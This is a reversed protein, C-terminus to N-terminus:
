HYGAGCSGGCGCGAKKLESAEPLRDLEITMTVYKSVMQHLNTFERQAYMFQRIVDNGYLALEAQEYASAEEPSLEQGQEEKQQLEQQQEMFREYQAVADEDAAFADIMDRMAKYGEQELLGKCLEAMQGAIADTDMKVLM